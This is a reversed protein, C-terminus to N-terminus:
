QLKAKKNELYKKMARIMQQVDTAHDYISHALLEGEQSHMTLVLSCGKSHLVTQIGFNCLPTRRLEEELSMPEPKM